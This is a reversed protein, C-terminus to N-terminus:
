LNSLYNNVNSTLATSETDYIQVESITGDYPNIDTKRVGISDINVTGALTETDSQAVGNLYLKILDSTM